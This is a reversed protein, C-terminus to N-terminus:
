LIFCCPLDSALKCKESQDCRLTARLFLMRVGIDLCNVHRPLQIGLPLRALAALPAERATTIEAAPPQLSLQSSSATLSSFGLSARLSQSPLVPFHSFSQTPLVGFEELCSVGRVPSKPLSQHALTVGPSQVTDDNERIFQRLTSNVSDSARAPLPSPSLTKLSALTLPASQVPLPPVAPTVPLAHEVSLPRLVDGGPVSVTTPLQFSRLLSSPAVSPLLSKLSMSPLALSSSLASRMPAVSLGLTSERPGLMSPEASAFVSYLARIPTSPLSADRPAHDAGASFLQDPRGLSLAHLPVPSSPEHSPPDHVDLPLADLAISGALPDPVHRASVALRTESASPHAPATPSSVIGDATVVHPRPHPKAELHSLKYLASSCLFDFARRSHPISFFCFFSKLRRSLHILGFV